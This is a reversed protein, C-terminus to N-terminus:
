IKTASVIGYWWGGQELVQYQRLAAIVNGHQVASRIGLQRLLVAAPYAWRAMRHLRRASPRIHATVDEIKARGFGAAVLARQHEDGTDLDPMAWGDLWEHLLREGAKDLPRVTRLFEAVVVRGGPRLLRAAERYFAAKHVAHCVSEIAWVVDFSGDPFPTATYDAREFAVQGLLGRAQAIQRARAVQRASLTIGVVQADRYVALWMSSGGIGCGADLVRESPQIEARDALAQNMRMLAAGHGRALQDHYGYHFALNDRNIWLVQYDLWTQDYYTVVREGDLRPSAYPHTPTATTM